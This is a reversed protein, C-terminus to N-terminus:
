RGSGPAGERVAESVAEVRRIAFGDIALSLTAVTMLGIGLGRTWGPGFSLGLGAILLIAGGIVFKAFGGTLGAIRTAEAALVDGGPSAALAALRRDADVVVWVTAALLVSGYLIMPWGAARGFGSREAHLILAGIAFLVLALPLMVALAHTRETQLYTTVVYM